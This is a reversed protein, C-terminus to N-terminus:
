LIHVASTCGVSASSMVLKTGCDANCLPHCKGFNHLAHHVQCDFNSRLLHYIHFMQFSCFEAILMVEATYPLKMLFYVLRGFENWLIQWSLLGRLESKGKRGDLKREAKLVSCDLDNHLSVYHIPCFIDSTVSELNEPPAWLPGWSYNMSGAPIPSYPFLLFPSLPNSNCPKNVSTSQILFFFVPTSSGFWHLGM